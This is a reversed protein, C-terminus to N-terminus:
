VLHKLTSTRGAFILLSISMFDSKVYTQTSFWARCFETPFTM